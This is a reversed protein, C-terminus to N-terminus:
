VGFISKLVHVMKDHHSECEIFNLLVLKKKKSVLSPLLGRRFLERTWRWEWPTFQLEFWAKTANIWLVHKEKLLSDSSIIQNLSEVTKQFAYREVKNLLHIGPDNNCQIYPIIKFMINGHEFNMITLLGQNWIDNRKSPNDFLFNGLGYIIPKGKYTEYGSFCHQHHNVVADAGAEVFFHYVEKMRPSPLQYEEHGGHVIVLVYNAKSRAEKIKYFQQIPNLPNAGVTSETAITFEHECCNIIAVTEHNKELYLIESAEQLNKGAGVTKIGASQLLNITDICCVEGQDLIHNNALTCVNFGAYRIAEVSEQTGRLNPGCKDIPKALADLSVIPFEFNVISYDAQKIIPSVDDFLSSYKHNRILTDVRNCQCYDGAILIKM